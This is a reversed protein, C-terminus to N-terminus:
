VTYDPPKHIDICGTEPQAVAKRPMSLTSIGDKFSADIADRDVDEPLITPGSAM